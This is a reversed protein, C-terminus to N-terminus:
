TCQLLFFILTIMIANFTRYIYILAIMLPLWYQLVMGGGGWKPTSAGGKGGFM